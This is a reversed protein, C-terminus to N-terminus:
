TKRRLAVATENPEIRFTSCTSLLATDVDIIFNHPKIGDDCLMRMEGNNLTKFFLCAKLMSIFTLESWALLMPREVPVVGFIGYAMCIPLEVVGFVYVDAM